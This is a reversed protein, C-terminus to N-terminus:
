FSARAFGRAQRQERAVHNKGRGAITGVYADQGGAKFMQAPKQKTEITRTRINDQQALGDFFMVKTAIVQRLLEGYKQEFILLCLNMADIAHENDSSFTPLGNTSISQIRYGELQETMTRDNPNLIIKSKEFLNVSNNVMFPKMAKKDKKMTYPDRVEIKESFQYGVVKEALGTNPNEIGHKHLLELQTEGYGRDVAIWDFDFQQNLEIIKNIANVYTFESRPIEVRFLVKFTPMLRGEKDRHYKDLQVCVMNTAASYKDWDVGLIRPGTRPLRIFEDIENPTLDLIYKHDIRRGEEIAAEIYKKQYVGMEEEGFEAMVEQLYRMESLEDKIDQLYTQETDPNQKLLERNVVSPACIEIWGNGRKNEQIQYGNFEFNDIDEKLPAYKVSANTCWRYYEEHKGSPTSAAIVKIREPAENRINIINTLNASGIYDAEDFIIVDARLGRTNAAGSGSGAGATIGTIKAGNSFQIRHYVNRSVMDQLLPSGAILQKLRDFILDVQTEYPGIVLVDYQENPGKNIQTYAYWLMLVCMTDTKGLRRGLRLVIKKGKKANSMISLQYDRAEWDLYVKAWLTPNNVVIFELADARSVGTQTVVHCLRPIIDKDLHQIEKIVVDIQKDDLQSISYAAKVAM